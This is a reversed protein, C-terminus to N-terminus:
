RHGAGETAEPKKNLQDRKDAPVEALTANQSLQLARIYAIIRWRDAPEIQAAYDPMTGFGSTVVDFIYGPPANRLRDEHYSPPKRFGRRVIMGDGYGLPGHCIGCYVEFRQQGRDLDSATIQMPFEKVFGQFADTASATQSAPQNAAFGAVRGTYFEIDERLGGRPVTGEVMPRASRGDTISGLQDVPRLPIYKPQDHM